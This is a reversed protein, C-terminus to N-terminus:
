QLHTFFQVVAFLVSLLSSAFAAAASSTAVPMTVVSSSNTTGNAAADASYSVLKGLMAPGVVILPEEAPASPSADISDKMDSDTVIRTDNITVMSLHASDDDFAEMAKGSKGQVINLLTDPRALRHAEGM